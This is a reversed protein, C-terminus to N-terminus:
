PPLSPGERAEAAVREAFGDRLRRLGEQARADSMGATIRAREGDLLRFLRRDTVHRWWWVELVFAASAVRERAGVGRM